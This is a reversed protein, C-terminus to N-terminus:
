FFRLSKTSMSLNIRANVHAACSRCNNFCNLSFVTHPVVKASVTYSYYGHQRSILPSFCVHPDIFGLLSGVSAHVQNIKSLSLDLVYLSVFLSDREKRGGGGGGGWGHHQLLLVIVVFFCLPLMMLSSCASVM